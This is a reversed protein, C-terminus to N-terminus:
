FNRTRMTQGIRRSVTTKLRSYSPPENHRINKQEYLALVTLLQFSDQLKSKHLGELVMETPIESAALLAKEWRADFGQIDDNQLRINFLDSLGQVAEYAGTAPFHENIMYAIQRGQLFRDDKQARQEEVSVRKRFDNRKDLLSKLASAIMADLMDYDTFDTRGM